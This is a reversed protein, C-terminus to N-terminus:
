RIGVKRVVCNKYRYFLLEEIFKLWKFEAILRISEKLYFKDTLRILFYRPNKIFFKLSFIINAINRRLKFNSLIKKIDAPNFDETTIMGEGQTAIALNEPTINKSLYGKAKSIEYLETAILPTATFIDYPYLGLRKHQRIAFDVTQRMQFLKEQPFGVIYFAELDIGIKSALRAVEIVKNLDLRKRIIEQLVYENASEVGIRLYTCGNIKCKELIDRNLYDARLGNPTDWTINFNSQAMGELINRFRSIDFSLNDDEFHLHNIKYKEKLLKIHKLVFDASNARFKSGMVLQISCFVCNFPCGRSTIIPVSRESGQYRYSERADKGKKNFYFYREMDVLDYAPLPIDDINEIFGRKENIILQGNDDIYAVGKVTKIDQKGSICELLEVATKEGEGMVVYDAYRGRNFFSSPMATAHPGGMAVKIDRSVEKVIEATKIAFAFQSSFQSSIGVLDPKTKDVVKKIEEWRAGMVYFNDSERYGWRNEEADVICDYIKVSHGAEKLSSAVYLLGLPIGSVAPATKRFHITPHKILLVNM